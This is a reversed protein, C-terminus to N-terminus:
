LQEEPGPKDKILNHWEVIAKAASMAKNKREVFAGYRPDDKERVFRVELTDRDKRVLQLLTESDIELEDMEHPDLAIFHMGAMPVFAITKNM